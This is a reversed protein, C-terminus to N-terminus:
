ISKVEFTDGPYRPINLLPELRDLAERLENINALAGKRAPLYGLVQYTMLQQQLEQAHYRIRANQQNIESVLLTDMM